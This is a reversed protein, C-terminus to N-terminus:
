GNSCEMYTFCFQLDALPMILAFTMLMVILELTVQIKEITSETFYTWQYVEESCEVINQFFYDGEGLLNRPRRYEKKSSLYLSSSCM